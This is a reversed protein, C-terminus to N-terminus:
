DFNVNGDTLEEEVQRHTMPDVKCKEFEVHRQLGTLGKAIVADHCISRVARAKCYGGCGDALASQSDLFGITLALSLIIAALLTRRLDNKGHM